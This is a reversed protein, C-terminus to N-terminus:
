TIYVFVGYCHSALTYDSIDYHVNQEGYHPPANLLKIETCFLPNCNHIVTGLVARAADEIEICLRKRDNNLQLSANLLRKKMNLQKVKDRIGTWLAQLKDTNLSSVFSSATPCLNSSKLTAPFLKWDHTSWQPPANEDAAFSSPQLDNPQISISSSSRTSIFNSKKEVLWHNRKKRM